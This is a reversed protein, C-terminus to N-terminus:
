GLGCFPNTKKEHGITTTLGHGPYVITDDPLNFLQEHISRILTDFDGGPLDTRGISGNFLVDGGLCVKEEINVLAIHGVSHGPVFLVDLSSNGFTIKEKAEIFRDAPAHNYNPFGYAAAYSPVSELTDNDAKPVQLPLNYTSSVFSNGLVHDIHCHTNILHKPILEKEEILYTLKNEEETTYCGPDIILCEKTDDFVIYTNEEFPNFVLTEISIM